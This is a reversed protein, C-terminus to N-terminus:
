INIRAGKKLEFYKTGIITMIINFIATIICLGILINQM